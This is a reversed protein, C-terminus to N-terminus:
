KIVNVIDLTVVLDWREKTEKQDGLDETEMLVKEVQHDQYVLNEMRAEPAM